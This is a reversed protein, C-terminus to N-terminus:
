RSISVDPAGARWWRRVWELLPNLVLQQEPMVAPLSAPVPVPVSARLERRAEKPLTGSGNLLVEVGWRAGGCLVFAARGRALLAGSGAHVPGLAGALWKEMRIRAFAVAEEPGTGPWGALVWDALRTLEEQKTFGFGQFFADLAARTEPSEPLGAALPSFRSTQTKVTDM